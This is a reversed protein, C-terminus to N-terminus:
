GVEQYRAADLNVPGDAMWLGCQLKGCRNSAVPYVQEFAPLDVVQNGAQFWGGDVM